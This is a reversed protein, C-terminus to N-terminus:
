WLLLCSYFENNRLYLYVVAKCHGMRYHLYYCNEFPLVASQDVSECFSITAPSIGIYPALKMIEALWEWREHQHFIHITQVGKEKFWHYNEMGQKASDEIETLTPRRGPNGPIKDLNVYYIQSCYPAFDIKVQYIFDLYEKRNVSKGSTWASYAGSDIIVQPRNLTKVLDLWSRYSSNYWYSFLMNRVDTEILAERLGNHLTTTSFYIYM